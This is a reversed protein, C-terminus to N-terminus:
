QEKIDNRLKRRQNIIHECYGSYSDRLTEYQKKARYYNKWALMEQRYLKNIVPDNALDPNGIVVVKLAHTIGKAREKMVKAKAKYAQIDCKTEAFRFGDWQNAIDEDELAATAEGFFVGYKTEKYLHATALSHITEGDVSTFDEPENYWADLIKGKM